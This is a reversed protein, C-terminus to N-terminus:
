IYKNLLPLITNKKKNQKTGNIILDTQTLDETHLIYIM